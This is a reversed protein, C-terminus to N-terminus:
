HLYFNEIDGMVVRKGNHGWQNTVPVCTKQDCFACSYTMHLLLPVLSFSSINFFVCSNSSSYM